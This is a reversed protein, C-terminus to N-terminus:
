VKSLDVICGKPIEGALNAGFYDLTGDANAPMCINCVHKDRDEIEIKKDLMDCWDGGEAFVNGVMMVIYATPVAKLSKLKAATEPYKKLYEMAHEATTPKPLQIGVFMITHTLMGATKPDVNNVPILVVPTDKTATSYGCPCGTKADPM